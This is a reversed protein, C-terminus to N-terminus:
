FRDRMKRLATFVELETAGELQLSRQIELSDCRLFPNTRKEELLTFPVTSLGKTRKIKERDIRKKLADNNPEVALAFHANTLTYEHSCFILTEDPLESIRKLSTLMELPTGEFLRGCGMAFLLDGSFLWDMKPIYYAILGSTHGPLFLVNIDEELLSL